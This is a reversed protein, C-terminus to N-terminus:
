TGTILVARNLVARNDPGETILADRYCQGSDAQRDAINEFLAVECLDYGPKLSDQKRPPLM